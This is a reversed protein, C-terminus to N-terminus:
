RRLGKGGRQRTAEFPVSRVGMTSKIDKYGLWDKVAFLDTGQRDLPNGISHKLAHCHRLNLPIGASTAYILIFRALQFRSIGGGERSPFPPGPKQGRVKLWAKLM